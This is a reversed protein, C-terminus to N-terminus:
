VSSPQEEVITGESLALLAVGVSATTTEAV